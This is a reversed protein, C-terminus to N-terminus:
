QRDGAARWPGPHVPACELVERVGHAALRRATAPPAGPQQAVGTQHGEGSGAVGSEVKYIAAQVPCRAKRQRESRKQRQVIAGLAPREESSSSQLFVFIHRLPDRLPSVM